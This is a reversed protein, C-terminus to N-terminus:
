KKKAQAKLQAIQVNLEAITLDKQASELESRSLAGQSFQAKVDAFKTRAAELEVRAKMLEIQGVLEIVHMAADARAKNATEAETMRKVAEAVQANKAPGTKNRWDRQAKARLADAAILDKVTRDNANRKALADMQARARLIKESAALQMEKASRMLAEQQALKDRVKLALANQHAQLAQLQAREIESQVKRKDLRDELFRRRVLLERGVGNSNKRALGPNAVKAGHPPKGIRVFVLGEKALKEQYARDHILELDISVTEPAAKILKLTITKGHGAAYHILTPTKSAKPIRVVLLDGSTKSV